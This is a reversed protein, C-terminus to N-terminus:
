SCAAEHDRTWLMRFYRVSVDYILLVKDQDRIPSDLLKYNKTPVSFFIDNFFRPNMGAVLGGRKFTSNLNQYNTGHILYPISAKQASDALPLKYLNLISRLANIISINNVSRLWRPDSEFLNILDSKNVRQPEKIINQLNVHNNLALPNILPDYNEVISECPGGGLAIASSLFILKLSFIAKSRRILFYMKKIFFLNNMNSMNRLLNNKTIM